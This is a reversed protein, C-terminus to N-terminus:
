ANTARPMSAPSQAVCYGPTAARHLRGATQFSQTYPPSSRAAKKLTSPTQCTMAMCVARGTWVLPVCPQAALRKASALATPVCSRARANTPAKAQPADDVRRASLRGAPHGAGCPTAPQRTTAVAKIAPRSRVDAHLTSSGRTARCGGATPSGPRITGRCRVTRCDARSCRRVTGPRAPRGGERGTRGRRERRHSRSRLRQGARMPWIGRRWRLQRGCGVEGCDRGRVGRSASAPVWPTAESSIQLFSPASAKSRM